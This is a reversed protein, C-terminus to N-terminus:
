KGVNTMNRSEFKIIERIEKCEWKLVNYNGYNKKERERELDWKGM